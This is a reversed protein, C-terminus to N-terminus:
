FTEPPNRRIILAAILSIFASILFSWGTSKVQGLVGFRGKMTERDAELKDITEDISESPAGMSEMMGRTNEISAQTLKEPLETDILGYLASNFVLGVLASSILLVYCYIWANKYNIFGGLQKRFQIGSYIVYGIFFFLIGLGFIISVLKTYDVVYLLITIVFSIVAMIVGAKIASQILNPKEVEMEQTEM